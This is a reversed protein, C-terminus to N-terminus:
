KRIAHIDLQIDMTGSGTDLFPQRFFDGISHISYRFGAKSLTWLLQDLQQNNGRISHYEVFLYKIKHLVDQCDMIVETEAGEIDMKLLDIQDYGALVDKLRISPIQRANETHFVSGGDAGESGFSIGSSDKWVAKNVVDVDSIGNAKLNRILYSCIKPDAEFAIIKAQPYLQKFRIVSVGVNAGCDLIVPVDSVPKFDMRAEAFYEKLQYAVSIFDPVIFSMGRFTFQHETYRPFKRASLILGDIDTAPIGLVRKILRAIM